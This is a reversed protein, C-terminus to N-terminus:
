PKILVRNREALDEVIIGTLHPVATGPVVFVQAIKGDKGRTFPHEDDSCSTPLAFDFANASPWSNGRDDRLSANCTFGGNKLYVAEGPTVTVTAVIIVSGAPADLSIEEGEDDTLRTYSELSDLKWEVDAVTVPGGQSVVQNIRGENYIREDDSLYSRLMVFVSGSLLALLLSIQVTLRVARNATRV